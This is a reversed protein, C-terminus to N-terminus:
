DFGPTYENATADEDYTYPDEVNYQAREVSQYNGGNEQVVCLNFYQCFRECSKDPTKMLHDPSTTGARITNALSTVTSVDRQLRLLTARRADSILEVSKRHFVPSPQSKSVGGDKNLYFGEANQPRDDPLAKRLFNYMVGRLEDRKGIIGKKRLAREALVGYARAQGDIVLHGTRIQAATKIENLWLYGRADEYLGDPKLKYLAGDFEFELPIETAIIDWDRDNNYHKAYAILMEKGLVFMEEAKEIEYEPVGLAAVIADTAIREFHKDLEGNRKKGKGYWEAFAAHVWTGLDLASFTQRKPVLGRRWKWYWKMQCRKFDMLEHSRVRPIM